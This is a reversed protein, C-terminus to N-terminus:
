ENVKVTLNDWYLDTTSDGYVGPAGAKVGIPDDLSITWDAPEPDAKKWVKGRATAKDGAVDVRLKMHYWVGPEAVLPKTASKELESAWVRLQLEEKKGMLDLTYGQSILGLDGVRRGQKTVMLDAEVTTGSLSPPGVFVAARQLGSELPPKQLRKSGDLDVVKFRPGAGIWHRPVSGSEFDFTWPLASFARVQTTASLEGLVAKVKGATTATPPATFRGDPSIEGALGDLSWAAKEKRLFRGKDDFSWAEFAVPEGAKAIVEGPVVLL